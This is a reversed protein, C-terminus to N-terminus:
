SKALKPDVRDRLGDGVFNLGLVLLAIALGPFITLHPADFLHSRGADLMTGWSPTPPQVGLGLFSLSAEAIITRAVSFTAVVTIPPLVNPLLHRLLISRDPAGLARAAAVFDRERLSLVQARIQRLLAPWQLLALIVALAFFSTPRFIAAIVILLGRVEDFLSALDDVEGRALHAGGDAVVVRGDDVRHAAGSFGGEVKEAAHDRFGDRLQGRRHRAVPHRGAHGLRDEHVGTGLAVFDRQAHGHPGAASPHDPHQQDAVLPM